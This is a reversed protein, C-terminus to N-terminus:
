PHLMRAVDPRTNGELTEVYVDAVGDPGSAHEISVWDSVERIFPGWQEALKAEVVGTGWDAHRKEIQSPAFFFTQAPGPLADASGGRDEWHTLGVVM